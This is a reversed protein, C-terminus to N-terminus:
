TRAAYWFAIAIIMGALIAMANELRMRAEWDHNPADSIIISGSLEQM